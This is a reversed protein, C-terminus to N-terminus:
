IRCKGKKDEHGLCGNVPDFNDCEPSPILKHGIAKENRLWKKFEGLKPHKGEEDTVCELMRRLRYDSLELLGEISTSLHRIM